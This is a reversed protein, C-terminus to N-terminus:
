RTRRDHPVLVDITASTSNGAADTATVIITYTRGAGTGSREARLWLTIVGSPDVVPATWDPETSGDGAADPPESSTVSATLTVGSLDSSTALVSVSRMVHDPPWLVLPSASLSLTPATTDRVTVTTGCSVPPNIRDSVRLTLAHEGLPFSSTIAPIAVPTGGMVTSVTAGGLSTSGEFWEFDVPDGEGDGVEGGLSVSSGLEYTGGGTTTCYPATNSMTVTVQGSSLAAGDNVELTFVHDGPSLTAVTALSLTCTADGGAPAAPAVEVGDALWRCTLADGDPDAVAATLSTGNQTAVTISVAPPMVVVPPHNEVVHQIAGGGFETILNAHSGAWFHKLAGFGMGELEHGLPDRVYTKVPTGDPLYEAVTNGQYDALFVHGNLVELGDHHTGAALPNEPTVPTTYTFALTWVGSPGQNGDYKWVRRTTTGPTYNWSIAGAYWTNTAKDYGLSQTHYGEGMPSVPAVSAQFVYRNQASDFVYRRIGVSAGLYIAYTDEDVWFESEHGPCVGLPFTSELQFTRTAIPGVAEPNEPHTNPDTGEPLTVKYIYGACSSGGYFVIRDIGDAGKFGDVGYSGAVGTNLNSYIFYDVAKAPLAFVGLAATIVALGRM